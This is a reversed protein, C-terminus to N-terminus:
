QGAEEAQPALAARLEGAKITKSDHRPVGDVHLLGEVREVVARLRDREALVDALPCDPYHEAVPETCDGCICESM